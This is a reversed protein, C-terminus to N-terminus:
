GPIERLTRLPSAAARTVAVLIVASGAILAARVGFATATLGGLLAGIPQIGFVLFRWTANVRGLVADPVLAQRLTRQPVGYIPTSMGSALLGLAVLPAVVGLPGRAAALLLGGAAALAGGTIFAPGPGVRSGYPAALLAGAVSAAGGEAVALGVLAPTLHLERVLYLVVLAGQMAGGLAGVAASVAVASLVPSGLLARVGEVIEARLRVPGRGAAPRPPAVVLAACAASLLFSAADFAIAVPATLLQVLGGAVSPGATGAVSTSLITLGNARSLGDRGVLAPLLSMVATEFLMTMVGAMFAVAYLHEIRLAGLVALAPIAGLLAARALDAVVLVSRRPLRDVWVGALLGFLLQPLTGVAALAAMQLASAHLVVVATLPLAVATIASGLSSISQGSWLKLFEPHRALFLRRRM